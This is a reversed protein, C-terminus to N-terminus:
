LQDRLMKLYRHLVPRPIDRLSGPPPEAQSIKQLAQKAATRNRQLQMISRDADGLEGDAMSRVWSSVLFEVDEAEEPGLVEPVPEHVDRLPRGPTAGEAALQKEKLLQRETARAQEEMQRRRREEQEDVPALDFEEIAGEPMPVYLIKQCTPCKGKKGGAEDPARVLRGCFNCHFEIPM